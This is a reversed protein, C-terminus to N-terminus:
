GQITRVLAGFILRFWFLQILYLIVQLVTSMVAAEWILPPESSISYNNQIQYNRVLLAGMFVIRAVFYFILFIANMVLFSLGETQKHKLMRWRHNMPFSTWESFINGACLAVSFRGAILVVVAGLIGVIHHLIFDAGSKM